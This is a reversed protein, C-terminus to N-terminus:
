WIRCLLQDHLHSLVSLTTSIPAAHSAHKRMYVACFILMLLLEVGVIIQLLHTEGLDTHLYGRLPWQTSLLILANTASSLVHPTSVLGQVQRFFQLYEQL